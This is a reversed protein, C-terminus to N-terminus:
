SFLLDLSKEFVALSSHAKSCKEEAEELVESEDTETDSEEAAVGGQQPHLMGGSAMSDTTMKSVGLIALVGPAAWMARETEPIIKAASVNFATGNDAISSSGLGRASCWKSVSSETPFRKKTFWISSVALEPVSREIKTENLMGTWEPDSVESARITKMPNDCYLCKHKQGLTQPRWAVLAEVCCDKIPGITEVGLKGELHLESM